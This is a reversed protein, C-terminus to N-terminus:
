FDGCGVAEEGGPGVEVLAGHAVNEVADAVLPAHEDDKAQFFSGETEALELAADAVDGGADEGVGEAVELLVAEDGALDEGGARGADVVREGREAAREVVGHLDEDM